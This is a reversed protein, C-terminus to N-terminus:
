KVGNEGINRITVAATLGVLAAVTVALLVRLGMSVFFPTPMLRILMDTRPNLLWGDNTFVLRHFATFLGGFDAIGWALAAAFIAATLGFGALMGSSFSKRHRRLAVGTGALVLAAAGLIWRLIGTRHILARCDAMHRVEYPQFCIVPKAQGDSNDYYSYQFYTSRGTLYDAIMRGMEPYETEPLGSSKPPAYRRMQEAMLSRDGAMNYVTVAAMLLILIWLFCFGAAAVAMRKTRDM